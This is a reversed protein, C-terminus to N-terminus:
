SLFWWLMVSSLCAQWFLGFFKIRPWRFMLERLFLDSVIFFIISSINSIKRIEYVFNSLVKWLLWNEIFRYLINRRSLFQKPPSSQKYTLFLIADLCSFECTSATYKSIFISFLLHNIMPVYLGRLWFSEKKKLFDTSYDKQM